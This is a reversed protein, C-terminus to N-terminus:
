RRVRGDRRGRAARPAAPGGRNGGGRRRGDDGHESLDRHRRPAQGARPQPADRESRAQHVGRPRTRFALDHVTVVLPARTPAPVLVTAHCVDVPGTAREVPPWRFRLWSEYLWPRALPLAAVPFSPRWPELPPQRHRGAVAVLEVSPHRVLHEAIRLASVASGGPVDHWCQELTYAVRVPDPVAGHHGRRGLM